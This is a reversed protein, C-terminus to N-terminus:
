QGGQRCVCLSSPGAASCFAPALSLPFSVAFSPSNTIRTMETWASSNLRPTGSSYSDRVHFPSLNQLGQPDRVARPM